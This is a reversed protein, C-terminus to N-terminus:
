KESSSVLCLLSELLSLALDTALGVLSCVSPKVMYQSMRNVAFSIIPRTKTLYQLSGVTQRYRRQGSDDLDDGVLFQVRVEM